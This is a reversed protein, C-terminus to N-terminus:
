FVSCDTVAAEKYNAAEFVALNELLKDVRSYVATLLLLKRITQQKM